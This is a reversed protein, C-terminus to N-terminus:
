ALEIRTAQELHNNSEGSDKKTDEDKGANEEIKKQLMQAFSDALDGKIKENSQLYYDRFYDYIAQKNAFRIPGCVGIYIFLSLALAFSFISVVGLEFLSGLYGGLLYTGIFVLYFPWNLYLDAKYFELKHARKFESNIVKLYHGTYQELDNRLLINISNISFTYVVFCTTVFLPLLNNYLVIKNIVEWNNNLLEDLMETTLGPSTIINYFENIFDQCGFANISFLPLNVILFSVICTALYIVITKWLAKFFSYVGSFHESFYLKIAAFFLRFSLSEVESRKLLIIQLSFLIPLMLIPVIFIMFIVDSFLLNLFSFATIFLGAFVFIIVAFGGNNKLNNAANKRLEVRKEM